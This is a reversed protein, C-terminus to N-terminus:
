GSPLSGGAAYRMGLLVILHLPYFAYFLLRLRPLRQRSLVVAAVLPYLLLAYPNGNVLWMAVLSAFVFSQTAFGPKAFSAWMALVLLIGPWMFEVFAGAVQFVVAATTIAFADRRRSAWIMVLGAAFTFMINLVLGDFRFAAQTLPMCIAGVVLLRVLVRRFVRPWREDSVRSIAYGFCFAFAPFAARGIENPWAWQRDFLVLNAHGILMLVLAAWKVVEVTGPELGAWRRAADRM